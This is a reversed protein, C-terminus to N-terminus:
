HAQPTPYPDSYYRLHYESLDEISGINWLSGSNADTSTKGAETQPAKCIHSESRGSQDEIVVKFYYGGPPLGQKRPSDLLLWGSVSSQPGIREDTKNEIRPELLIEASSKMDELSPQLATRYSAHSVEVTGSPSNPRGAPGNGGVQYVRVSDLPIPTLNEWPGNEDQSVAVQIRAFSANSDKLNTISLYVMYFIPSISKGILSIYTAMFNSRPGSDQAFVSRIDVYFTDSKKVNKSEVIQERDAVWCYFAVGIVIAIITLIIRLAKASTNLRVKDWYLLKLALWITAIEFIVLAPVFEDLSFAIGGFTYLLSVGVGVVSWSALQQVIFRLARDIHEMM